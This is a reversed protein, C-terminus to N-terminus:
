LCYIKHDDGEEFPGWVKIAEGLEKNMKGAELFPIDKVSADMAQRMAMAGATAGMPHGHVGAGVGLICDVGVDALTQDVNQPIVGGGYLLCLPKIDYFKTEAAKTYKIYSSKLLDFKGYPSANVFIDAGSLRVLKTLVHLSVGQYASSCLSGSFSNHAMIPVTIEPDEALARLASLGVGFANVMICNGGNKIVNMAHEKLKNVEDTINIAYLTMEGKIADAKKGAEMCLNLRDLLKNFPKDGAILEDDKIIDVGGVAAEYFLKAGVEPTYGTCPKVMNNLFPRGHVNM